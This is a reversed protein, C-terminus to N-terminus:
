YPAVQTLYYGDKSGEANTMVTGLVNVRKSRLSHVARRVSEKRTRQADL